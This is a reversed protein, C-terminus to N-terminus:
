KLVEELKTEPLYHFRVFERHGKDDVLVAGGQRASPIAMARPVELDDPIGGLAAKEAEATDLRFAIRLGCNDRISTPISDSTPKQTILLVCVGASRGRKVLTTALNQVELAVKALEKDTQKVFLEQCEDIVILEFPMGNRETANWFNSVGLTEKQSRLRNVMLRAADELIDRVAELDDASGVSLFREAQPEYASWDTGGKCDIVTLNVESSLALPALFSSVGATKGSGPMGSVLVGAVERFSIKSVEGSANTACAVSMSSPDFQAPATLIVPEDLPNLKVWRITLAGSGDDSVTVTQADFLNRYDKAVDVLRSAPVGRIPKSVTLTAERANERLFVEYQEEDKPDVLRSHRLFKNGKRKAVSGGMLRFLRVGDGLVPVTPILWRVWYSLLGLFFIVAVLVAVLVSGWLRWAVWLTLAWAVTSRLGWVMRAFCRLAGLLFRELKADAQTRM